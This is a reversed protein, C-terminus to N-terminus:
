LDHDGLECKQSRLWKTFGRSFMSALAMKPPRPRKRQRTLGAHSASPASNDVTKQKEKTKFM